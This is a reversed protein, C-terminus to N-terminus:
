ILRRVVLMTWVDSIDESGSGMVFARAYRVHTYLVSDGWVSFKCRSVNLRNWFDGSFSNLKWKIRDTACLSYINVCTCLWLLGTKIVRISIELNDNIINSALKSFYTQFFIEWELNFEILYFDEMKLRSLLLLLSRWFYIFCSMSIDSMMCLLRVNTTSVTYFLHEAKFYAPSVFLFFSHQYDIYM